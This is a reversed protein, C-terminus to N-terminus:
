QKCFASIAAGFYQIENPHIEIERRFFIRDAWQMCVKLVTKEASIKMLWDAVFIGFTGFIDNKPPGPIIFLQLCYPLIINDIHYQM